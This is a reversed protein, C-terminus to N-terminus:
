EINQSQERIKEIKSKLAIVANTVFKDQLKSGITNTERQMEQAVFDLNKGVSVDTKLLLKFEDIYHILRSIEENVDAGKQFSSFEDNNLHSKKEKLIVISRAQIKKVQELMQKLKDSVDITLSRGERKRMTNLENLSLKLSREIAPWLLEGSLVGEKAEVVGPLKILDSLSLNDNFGFEKKLINAYKLYKQVADKNFDLIEIPKNTIKLSVTVRGRAMNKQLIQRIKNEISGFGIPLYFSIDLYRHNLSKVEIVGKIKGASIQSCGFGTMGRIM